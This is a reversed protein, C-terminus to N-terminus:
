IKDRYLSYIQKSSLRKGGSKYFDKILEDVFWTSIILTDGRCTLGYKPNEKNQHCFDLFSEQEVLCNRAIVEITQTM